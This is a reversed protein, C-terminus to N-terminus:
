FQLFTLSILSKTELNLGPFYHVLGNKLVLGPKIEHTKLIDFIVCKKTHPFPELMPGYAPRSHNPDPFGGLKPCLFHPIPIQPELLQLLYFTPHCLKM